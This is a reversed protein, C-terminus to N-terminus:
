CQLSLAVCWYLDLHDSCYQYSTPQASLFFPFNPFLSSSFLFPTLHYILFYFLTLFFFDYSLSRLYSTSLLLTVALTWYGNDKRIYNCPHALHPNFQSSFCTMPSVYSLGTHFRRHVSFWGQRWIKSHLSLDLVWDNLDSFLLHLTPQPIYM